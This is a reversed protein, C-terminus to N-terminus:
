YDPEWECIFGFNKINYIEFAPNGRSNEDNWEGLNVIKGTPTTFSSGYMMLRTERKDNTPEGVAWNSFLFTEYSKIWRWVTEDKWGGIWYATRGKGAVLQNIFNQEDKSNIEVLEGGMKNCYDSASFWDMGTLYVKYYHTRFLVADSPVERKPKQEDYYKVPRKSYGYVKEEEDTKKKERIEYEALLSTVKTIINKGAEFYDGKKLLPTIMNQLANMGTEDIIKDQMRPSACVCWKKTDMNIILLVSGMEADKFYKKQILDAYQQLSFDKVQTDKFSKVTIMGLRIKNKNKWEFERIDAILKQKDDKKLLGAGDIVSRISSDQKNDANTSTVQLEPVVDYEVPEAVVQKVKGPLSTTINLVIFLVIVGVMSAVIGILFKKHRKNKTGTVPASEKLSNNVQIESEIMAGCYNCFKSGTDIQKGCKTCFSTRAISDKEVLRRGCKTCFSGTTEIDINCYKCYKM